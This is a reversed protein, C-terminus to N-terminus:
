RAQWFSTSLVRPRVRRLFWSARVSRGTVLFVSWANGVSEWAEQGKRPHERVENEESGSLCLSNATAGAVFVNAFREEEVRRAVVEENSEPRECDEVEETEEM